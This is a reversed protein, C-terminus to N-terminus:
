KRIHQSPSSTQKAQVTAELLFLLNRLLDQYFLSIYTFFHQTSHMKTNTAATALYKGDSNDPRIIESFMFVFM